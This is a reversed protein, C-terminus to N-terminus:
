FASLLMLPSFKEAPRGLISFPAIRNVVQLQGEDAGLGLQLAGDVRRVVM